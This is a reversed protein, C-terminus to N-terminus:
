PGNILFTMLRGDYRGTSRASQDSPIAYLVEYEHDTRHEREEHQVESSDQMRQSKFRQQQQQQTQPCIRRLLSQSTFFTNLCFAPSVFHSVPSFRVSRSLGLTPYLTNQGSSLLASRQAREEM